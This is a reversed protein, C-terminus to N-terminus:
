IFAYHTTPKAPSFIPFQVSSCIFLSQLIDFYNGSNTKEDGPLGGPFFFTPRVWLVDEIMMGQEDARFKFLSGQFLSGANCM